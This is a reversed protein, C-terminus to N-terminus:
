LEEIEILIQSPAVNEGQKMFINKVIGAKPARLVNQMKM